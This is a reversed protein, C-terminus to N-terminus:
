RRGAEMLAVFDSRKPWGRGMAFLAMASFAMSWLPDGVRLYYVFGVVACLLRMTFAMSLAALYGGVYRLPDTAPAQRLVKDMMMRGALGAGGLLGAGVVAWVVGWGPTAPVTAGAGGVGKWAMVALLMAAAPFAALAVAVAPWPGADEPGHGAAPEEVM